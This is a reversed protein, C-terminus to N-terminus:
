FRCANKSANIYIHNGAYWSKPVLAETSLLPLWRYHDYPPWFSKEKRCLINWLSPVNQSLLPAHHLTKCRYKTGALRRMYNLRACLYLILGKLWMTCSYPTLYQTQASLKNGTLKTPAFGHFCYFFAIRWVASESCLCIKSPSWWLRLYRINGTNRISNGCEKDAEWDRLLCIWQVLVMGVWPFFMCCGPHGPLLSLLCVVKQQASRPTSWCLEISM